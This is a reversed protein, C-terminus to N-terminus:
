PASGSENSSTDLNPGAARDALKALERATSAVLRWDQDASSIEDLILEALDAARSTCDEPTCATPDDSAFM